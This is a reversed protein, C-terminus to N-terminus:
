RKEKARGKRKGAAASLFLFFNHDIGTRLIEPYLIQPLPEICLKRLILDTDFIHGGAIMRGLKQGFANIRFAINRM